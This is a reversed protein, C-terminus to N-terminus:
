SHADVVQLTAHEPIDAYMECFKARWDAIVEADDSLPCEHLEGLFFLASPPDKLFAEHDVASKCATSAGILWRPAFPIWRRWISRRALPLLGAFIGGVGFYDWRAEDSISEGDYNAFRDLLDYVDGKDAVLVSTHM